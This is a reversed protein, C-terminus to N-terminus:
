MVAAELISLERRDSDIRLRLGLPLVMMPDTHGFDMNSVIPLDRLGYEERVTRCLTDGYAPFLAPDVQGGPRRASDRRAAGPLGDSGALSHLAGADGARPAEESTELFLVAGDLSDAAPFM